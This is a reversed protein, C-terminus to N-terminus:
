KKIQTVDAIHVGSFHHKRIKNKADEKSTAYIEPKYTEGHKLITVRYKKYDKM